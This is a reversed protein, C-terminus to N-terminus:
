GRMAGLSAARTVLAALTLVAAALSMARGGAQHRRAALPTALTFGSACGFLTYNAMTLPSPWEQLFRISVYVM